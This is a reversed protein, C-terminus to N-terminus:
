DTEEPIILLVEVTTPQGNQRAPRFQWQRLSRLVFSAYRFNSPFAIALSEFHGERNLVGHVILADANLDRALLNPRAIDYPWPAELRAVRGAGAAEAARTLSYQMIWNKGLGVHLYATYAMRNAWIEPTEPFQDSVSSGVVVVSFRGDKPLLIHETSLRRGDIALDDVEERGSGGGPSANPVGETRASAAEGGSGASKALDNVPPLFVAGHSMWVDTLSLVATPTPMELSASLTAPAMQAPNVAQTELPSTTGAPLPDPRSPLAISAVAVDALKLEQNPLELSPRINAAAPPGPAPPIIKQLAKLEPTWIMLSPVPVQESFSLHSLFEPQILTQRGATAGLFSRMEDALDPSLDMSLQRLVDPGPYPVKEQTIAPRRPFDPPLEQEVAHLDLQRVAFHASLNPDMIRPAHTFAFYVLGVVAAHTVISFAFSSPRGPAVSPEAFLSLTASSRTM